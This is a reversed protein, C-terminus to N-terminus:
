REWRGIAAKAEKFKSSFRRTFHSIEQMCGSFLREKLLEDVRLGNVKFPKLEDFKADSKGKVM